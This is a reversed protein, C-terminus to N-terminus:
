LAPNVLIRANSCKRFNQSCSCVFVRAIKALLELLLWIKRASKFHIVMRYGLIQFPGPSGSRSMIVIHFGDKVFRVTNQPGSLVMPFLCQARNQFYRVFSFTSHAENTFGAAWRFLSICVSLM